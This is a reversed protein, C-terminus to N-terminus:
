EEQESPAAVPEQKRASSQCKRRAAQRHEAIPALAHHAAAFSEPRDLEVTAIVRMAYLRIAEALDQLLLRMNAAEPQELAKIIGLAEGYRQHARRLEGSFEPGVIEDLEASIGNADMLTLLVDSHAWEERYPLKVFGLGHPFIAACAKAARAARPYQKSPLRALSELNSRLASWIADIAKDAAAAESRAKSMEQSRDVMNQMLPRLRAAVLDAGQRVGPPADKPVASLLQNALTTGTACSLPPIQLYPFLEQSLKSM